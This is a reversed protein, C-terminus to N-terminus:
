LTVYLWCGNLRWNNQKKGARALAYLEAHATVDNRQEVRNYGRGIITGQQDVIIAGVPIEQQDYAKRALKLAQKMYHSDKKRIASTKITSM